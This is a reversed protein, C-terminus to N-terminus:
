PIVADQEQEAPDQTRPEPEPEDPPEPQPDAVAPQEALKEALSKRVASMREDGLIEDLIVPLPDEVGDIWSDIFAQRDEAPLLPLFTKEWDSRTVTGGAHDEYWGQLAALFRVDGARHRLAEYLVPGRYYLLVGFQIDDMEACPTSLPLMRGAIMPVAYLRQWLKAEFAQRGRMHEIVYWTSWETLPEDLWPAHHPDNGVQDYWWSHLVEHIVSHLVHTSGDTLPDRQTRDLKTFNERNIFTLGSAEMGGYQATFDVLVIDYSRRPYPGFAESAIRFTDRAVSACFAARVAHRNLYAVRVTPGTASEIAMTEVEGDSLWATLNRCRPAHILWSGDDTREERGGALLHWDEPLHLRARYDCCRVWAPDANAPLAPFHWGDDSRVAPEPLWSYLTHADANRSLLGARGGHEPVTTTFEIHCEIWEGPAQPAPLPLLLGRGDAVLEPEVREGAVRVADIRIASGTYSARNNAHLVFGIRARPEDGPNDLAARLEGRLIGSAPDYDAVVDIAPLARPLPPADAALEVAVDERLGVVWAPSEGAALVTALVFLLFCPCWSPVRM